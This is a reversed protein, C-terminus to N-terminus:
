RECASHISLDVQLNNMVIYLGNSVGRGYTIINHQPKLYSIM